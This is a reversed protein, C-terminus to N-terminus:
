SYRRRLEEEATLLVRDKESDTLLSLTRVVEAGGFAGLDIPLDITKSSMPAGKSDEFTLCARLVLHPHPLLGSAGVGWGRAVSKRKTLEAMRECCWLEM